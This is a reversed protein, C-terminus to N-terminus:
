KEGSYRLCFEAGSLETSHFVELVEALTVNFSGRHRQYYKKVVDDGPRAEVAASKAAKKAGSATRKRTSAM